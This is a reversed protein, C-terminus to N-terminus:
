TTQNFLYKATLLKKCEIIFSDTFSYSGDINVLIDGCPITYNFRFDHNCITDIEEKIFNRWSNNKQALKILWYVSSETESNQWKSGMLSYVGLKLSDPTISTTINPNVILNPLIPKDTTIKLVKEMYISKGETTKYYDQCERILEQTEIIEISEARKLTIFM